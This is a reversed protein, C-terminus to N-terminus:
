AAWAVPPPALPVSPCRPSQPFPPRPSSSGPLDLPLQSPTPHGTGIHPSFPQLQLLPACPIVTAHDARVCDRVCEHMCMRFPLFPPAAPCRCCQGVPAAAVFKPAPSSSSSAPNPTSPTTDAAAAEEPAAPPTTEQTTGAAFAADLEDFNMEKRDRDLLRRVQAANEDFSGTLHLPPNATPECEDFIYVPNTALAVWQNKQPYSLTRPTVQRSTPATTAQTENQAAKSTHLTSSSTGRSCVGANQFVHSNDQKM